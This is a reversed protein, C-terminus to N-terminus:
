SMPLDYFWSLNDAGFLLLQPVPRHTPAKVLGPLTPVTREADGRARGRM